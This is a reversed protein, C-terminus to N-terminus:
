KLWKVAKKFGTEEVLSIGAYYPSLASRDIVANLLHNEYVSSSTHLLLNRCMLSGSINGRMDAYGNSYVSGCIVAKEPITIGGTYLAQSSAANCLFLSGSISDGQSLILAANKKAGEQQVIGLVSPYNLVVDKEILMSDAAFAQLNGRFGQKIIIKPACLIVDELSAAAEVTIATQSILVIHGSYSARITMAPRESIVVVPSLFSNTTRTTETEEPLAATAEQRALTKIRETLKKNFPPLEKASERIEGYVMASGTYNQGEIYARKIGAKPLFATGRLATAGCIAVPKDLDSVYLCYNDASNPSYGTEAISMSEQGHRMAKSAAIEFAGWFQRSLLVSDTGNKYLDITREEEEAVLTQSSLLLNLGSAANLELEQRSLSRQFSEASLQSLMIMSGSLLAIVLSIVISYFLTGAKLM